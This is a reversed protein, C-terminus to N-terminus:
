NLCSNYYDIDAEETLFSTYYHKVYQCENKRNRCFYNTVIKTSPEVSLLGVSVFFGGLAAVM